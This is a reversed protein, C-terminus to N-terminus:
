FDNGKLANLRKQIEQQQKELIEIEKQTKLQRYRTIAESVADSADQIKSLDSDCLSKANEIARKAQSLILLIDDVGSLKTAEKIERRRKWAMIASYRRSLDKELFEIREQESKGALFDDVYKQITEEKKM